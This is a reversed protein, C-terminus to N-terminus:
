IWPVAVRRLPNPSGSQHYNTFFVWFLCTPTFQPFVLRATLLLCTAGSGSRHRRRRRLRLLLFGVVVVLLLLVLVEPPLSQM